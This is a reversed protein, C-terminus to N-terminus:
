TIWGRRLGQSRGGSAISEGDHAISIEIGYRILMQLRSQIEALTFPIMDPPPFLNRPYDFQGRGGFQHEVVTGWLYVEGHIGYRQYGTRCLHDLSKAGYVGCTCDMQPAEHSDCVAEARGAITGHTTAARCGAALQQGPLWPDGNLSNLGAADWQWVRNQAGRVHCGLTAASGHDALGDRVVADDLLETAPAHASRTPNPNPRKSGDSTGGPKNGSGLQYRFSEPDTTAQL